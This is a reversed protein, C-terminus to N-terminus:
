WELSIYQDIKQQAEGLIADIDAGKLDLGEAKIQDVRKIGFFSQMVMKVYGFGPEDCLIPGGATTVYVVRDARCLSYPM